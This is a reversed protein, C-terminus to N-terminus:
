LETKQIIQIFILTICNETENYNTYVHKCNKDRKIKGHEGKKGFIRNTAFLM